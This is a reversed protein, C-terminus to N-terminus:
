GEIKAFLSSVSRIHANSGKKKYRHSANGNLFQWFPKSNPPRFDPHVHQNGALTQRKWDIRSLQLTRGATAWPDAPLCSQLYGVGSFSTRSISIWVVDDM